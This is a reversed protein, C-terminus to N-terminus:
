DPPRHGAAKLSDGAQAHRDDSLRFERQMREVIMELAKLSKARDAAGFKVGRVAWNSDLRLKPSEQQIIVGVFKACEPDFNKVADTIANELDSRSAGNKEQKKKPFFIMGVGLSWVLLDLLDYQFWRKKAFCYLKDITPRAL